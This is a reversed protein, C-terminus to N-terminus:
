QEDRHITYRSEGAVVLSTVEPVRRRMRVVVIDARRGTALAGRDHLGVAAAPTATIMAVAQPLTALAERALFTAAYLLSPAHYDAVLIDMLGAHALEMASVNGALSGGRVLNPAGMAVIMGRKKAQRAAETTVPFEAVRCGLRAMTDVHEVSDDDHSVLTIGGTRAAEALRAHALAVQGDTERVFAEREAIWEDATMDRTLGPKLQAYMRAMDRLQGRGPVHDNLSVLRSCDDGVRALIADLSAALRVDCRYLTHHNVLGCGSARFAAIATHAAIASAITREKGPMGYFSLAHFQTAVGAAALARDLAFMALDHPLNACPRPNIAKEIGDNHLCVVGPLVLRGGVDIVTERLTATAPYARETVAAIHVGEIIVSGGEYLDTPTVVTGGTLILRAPM